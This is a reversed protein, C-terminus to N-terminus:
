FRYVPCEPCLDWHDSSESPECPRWMWSSLRWRPCSPPSSGSSWSSSTSSTGATGSTPTRTSSSAKRSSRWSASPRSSSFFSMSWKRRCLIFSILFIRVQLKLWANRKEELSYILETTKFSGFSIKLTAMFIINKFDQFIFLWIKKAM